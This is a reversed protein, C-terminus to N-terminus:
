TYIMTKNHTKKHTNHTSTKTYKRKMLFFVSTNRNFPVNLANTAITNNTIINEEVFSTNYLFKLVSNLGLNKKM